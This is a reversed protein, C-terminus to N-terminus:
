INLCTSIILQTKIKGKRKSFCKAKRRRKREKRIKSIVSERTHYLTGSDIHLRYKLSPPHLPTAMVNLVIVQITSTSNFHLENTKHTFM